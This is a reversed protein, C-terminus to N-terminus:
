TGPQLPAAEHGAAIRQSVPLVVGAETVDALRVAYGDMASNAQPPVHLQSVPDEALVRGDSALVPVQEVQTLPEVRGLLDSLAEDTVMMLPHPRPANMPRM